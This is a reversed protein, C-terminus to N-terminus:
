SEKKGKLYLINRITKPDRQLLLLLIKAPGQPRRNGQEWHQLTRISFGFSDAFDQRSLNLNKRILKVDIKDPIKVKHIVASTKKGRMFDVAEKMSKIVEDGVNKKKSM